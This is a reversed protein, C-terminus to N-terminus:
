EAFQAKGTDMYDSLEKLRRYVSLLIKVAALPDNEALEMIFPIHTQLRLATAMTKIQTNLFVVDPRTLRAEEASKGLWKRESLARRVQEYAVQQKGTRDSVGSVLDILLASTPKHLSLDIFGPSQKRMEAVAPRLGFPVLLGLQEFFNVASYGGRWPYKAFLTKLKSQNVGISSTLSFLFSYADDLVNSFKKLDDLAWRGDILM